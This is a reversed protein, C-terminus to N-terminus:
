KRWVCNQSAFEGKWAAGHANWGEQLNSPRVLSLARAVVLDTELKDESEEGGMSTLRWSEPQPQHVVKRGHRPLLAHCGRFSPAPFAGPSIVDLLEAVPLDMRKDLGTRMRQAHPHSHDSARRTAWAQAALDSLSFAPAVWYISRPPSRTVLSGDGSGVERGSCCRSARRGACEGMECGRHNGRIELWM